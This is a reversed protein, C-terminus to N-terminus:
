FTKFGSIIEGMNECYDDRWISALIVMVFTISSFAPVNNYHGIGNPFIM